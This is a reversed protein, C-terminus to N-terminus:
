KDLNNFIEFAKSSKPINFKPTFPNNCKRCKISDKQTIDVFNPANCEIEINGKRVLNPCPISFIPITTQQLAAIWERNKEDIGIYLNEKDSWKM